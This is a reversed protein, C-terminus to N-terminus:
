RNLKELSWRVSSRIILTQMEINVCERRQAATKKNTMNLFEISGDDIKKEHRSSCYDFVFRTVMYVCSRQCFM